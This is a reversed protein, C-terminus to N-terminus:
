FVLNASSIASRRLHSKRQDVSDTGVDSATYQPSSIPRCTVASARLAPILGSSYMTEFAEPSCSRPASAAAESLSADSKPLQFVGHPSILRYWRKVASM